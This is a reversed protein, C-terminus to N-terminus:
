PDAPSEPSEAMTYFDGDSPSTPLEAMTYVTNVNVTPNVTTSGTKSEEITEYYVVTSEQCEISNRQNSSSVSGANKKCRLKHWLLSLGGAALLILCVCVIIIIVYFDSVDLYIENLLHIYNREQLHTSGCFYIGDDHRNVKKITVTFVRAAPNDTLSFRGYTHSRGLDTIVSEISKHNVRYLHKAYDKYKPPYKCSITVSGGTYGTQSQKGECCADHEVKLRLELILKNGVKCQYRGTDHKTLNRIMVSLLGVSKKDYMSFREGDTWLDSEEERMTACKDTQENCFSRERDKKSIKPLYQCNIVLSEGAIGTVTEPAGDVHGTILFYISIFLLIMMM